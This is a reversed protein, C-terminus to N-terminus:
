NCGLRKLDEGKEQEEKEPGGDEGSDQTHKGSSTNKVADDTAKKKKKKEKAKPKQAEEPKVAVKENVKEAPEHYTIRQHYIGTLVRTFCKAIQHLDSLTLDCENLQGSAFVRNIMKQVLGQIKDHSPDKLTRTAAEIGDALMLLGAEKTQPKPGPYSYSSIDVEVTEENEEAEKKAKEYFYEIVSTGHHQEIMDILPAPLKHQKALEKGDKVHARIILASMSPSLKDHRNDGPTQNEVFYLPKKMKGIDHFYSGVRALVPNANIADAGAEVMMGIVMSHNWTGPAQISLEKLLPHDLTAMEILRIDTVYGGIYEIIPTAGAALFACLIGGLLAGFLKLLIDALGVAETGILAALAFPLAIIGINFGAKIYAARSRLRSLSLCAVLNSILVFPAFFQPTPSYTCIILTLSLSYVLSFQLGLVSQVLLGGTAYPIAFYFSLAAVPGIIDLTSVYQAMADSLLNGIGIVALSCALILQMSLFDKFSPKYRSFSVLAFRHVCFLSLFVIAVRGISAIWQHPGLFSEFVWEAVLANLLCMAIGNAPKMRKQAIDRIVTAPAVKTNM